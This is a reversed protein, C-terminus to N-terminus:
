KHPIVWRHSIGNEGHCIICKDTMHDQRDQHCAICKEKPVEASQSVFQPNLFITKGIRRMKGMITDKHCDLCKAKGYHASKVYEVVAPEMVHCGGCTLPNESIYGNIKPGMFFGVILSAALICMFVVFLGCRRGRKNEM